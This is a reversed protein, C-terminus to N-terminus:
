RGRRRLKPYRVFYFYALVVVSGALAKAVTWWSLGQQSFGDVVAMVALLVVLTFAIVRAHYLRRPPQDGTGPASV